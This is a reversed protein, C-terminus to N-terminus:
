KLSEIIGRRAFETAFVLREKENWGSAAPLIKMLLPVISSIINDIGAQEVLAQLTVETNKEAYQVLPLIGKSVVSAYQEKKVMPIATELAEYPREQSTPQEPAAASSIGAAATQRALHKVGEEDDPAGGPVRETRAADDRDIPEIPKAARLTKRPVPKKEPKSGAAKKKEPTWGFNSRLYESFKQTGGPKITDKRWETDSVAKRYEIAIGEPSITRIILLPEKGKRFIQNERLQGSIRAFLKEGPREKTRLEKAKARGLARNKQSWVAELEKNADGLFLVAQREYKTGKIKEGSEWLAADTEKLFERHKGRTFGINRIDESAANQIRELMVRTEEAVAERFRDLPERSEPEKAPPKESSGVDVTNMDGTAPLPDVSSTEQIASVDDAVVPQAPTRRRATGTGGARKGGRVDQEPTDRFRTHQKGKRARPRKREDASNKANGDGNSFMRKELMGLRELVKKMDQSSSQRNISALLGDVEDAFHSASPMNKVLAIKGARALDYKRQLHEAKKDLLINFYGREVLEVDPEESAYKKELEGLVEEKLRLVNEPMKSALARIEALLRIRQWGGRVFRDDLVNWANGIAEIKQRLIDLHASLEKEEGSTDRDGAEGRIGSGYEKEISEGWGEVADSSAEYERIFARAVKEMEEEYVRYFEPYKEKIQDVAEMGEVGILVRFNELPKRMVRRDNKVSGDPSAETYFVVIDGDEKEVREVVIRGGSQPNEFIDGRQFKETQEEPRIKKEPRVLQLSPKGAAGEQSSITKGGQSEALPTDRSVGRIESSM